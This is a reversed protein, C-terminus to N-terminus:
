AVYRTHLYADPLVAVTENFQNIVYELDHGDVRWIEHSDRTKSICSPVGDITYVTGVEDIPTEGNGDGRVTQCLNQQVLWM